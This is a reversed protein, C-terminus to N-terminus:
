VCAFVRLCVKIQWIIKRLTNMNGRGNSKTQKCDVWSAAKYKSQQQEYSNNM